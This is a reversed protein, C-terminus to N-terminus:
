LLRCPPVARATHRRLCAPLPGPRCPIAARLRRLGHPIRHGPLLCRRPKASRSWCRPWGDMWRVSPDPVLDARSLMQRFRSPSGASSPCPEHLDARGHQGIRDHRAPRGRRQQVVAHMHAQAAVVVVFPRGRARSRRSPDADAGAGCGCSHKDVRAQQGATSFGQVRFVFM